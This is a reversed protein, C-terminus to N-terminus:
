IQSGVVGHEMLLSATGTTLSPLKDGSPAMDDANTHMLDYHDWYRVPVVQLCCESCTWARTSGRKWQVTLWTRATLWNRVLQLGAYSIVGVAESLCDYAKSAETHSIPLWDNRPQRHFVRHKTDAAAWDMIHEVPRPGRVGSKGTETDRRWLSEFYIEEGPKRQFIVVCHSYPGGTVRQILRTSFESTDATYGFAIKM